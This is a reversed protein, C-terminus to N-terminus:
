EKSKELKKAAIFHKDFLVDYSKKVPEQFPDYYKFVM